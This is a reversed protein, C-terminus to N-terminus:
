RVIYVIERNTPEVLVLRGNIRTYRYKALSPRGAIPYLEVAAPLRAGVVVKGRARFAPRPNKAVYTQIYREEPATISAATAGAAGGIIAGVVAGVPGGVLAGGVAGAAAGGVAGGKAAREQSATQAQVPLTALSMVTLTSIVALTKKM